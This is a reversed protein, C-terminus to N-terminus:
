IIICQKPFRQLNHFSLKFLSPWGVFRTDVEWMLDNFVFLVVFYTSPLALWPINCAYLHLRILDTQNRGESEPLISSWLCYLDFCVIFHISCLNDAVFSFSLKFLLLMCIFLVIDPHTFSYWNLVHQNFVM